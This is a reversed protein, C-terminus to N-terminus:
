AACNAARVTGGPRKRLRWLECFIAQQIESEGDNAQQIRVSVEGEGLLTNIFHRDDANLNLLDAALVEGLPPQREGLQHQLENLLAIVQPSHACQELAAMGPEGSVRCTIPVPNM